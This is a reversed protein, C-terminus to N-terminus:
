RVPHRMARLALMASEAVSSPRARGEEIAALHRAFSEARLPVIAAGLASFLDIAEPTPAVLPAAVIPRGRLHATELTWLVWDDALTQPGFLCVTATARRIRVDLSARIYDARQTAFLESTLSLDVALVGSSAKLREAFPRAVALDGAAFTFLL